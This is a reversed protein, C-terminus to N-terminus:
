RTTATQAAAAPYSLWSQAPRQAVGKKSYDCVGQPFAARLGALQADTVPRKYDAKDIAKLECKV